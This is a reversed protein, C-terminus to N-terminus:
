KWQIMEGFIKGSPKCFYQIKNYEYCGIHVHNILHLKLNYSKDEGHGTLYGIFEGNYYHGKTYMSQICDTIPIQEWYGHRKGNDNYKNIKIEM